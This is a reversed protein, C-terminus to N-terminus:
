AVAKARDDVLQIAGVKDVGLNRETDCPLVNPGRVPGLKQKSM